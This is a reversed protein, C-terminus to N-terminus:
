LVPILSELFAKIGLYSYNNPPNPILIILDEIVGM